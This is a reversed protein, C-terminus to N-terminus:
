MGQPGKIEEIGSCRDNEISKEGSRSFRTTLTGYFRRRGESKSLTGGAWAPFGMGSLSGPQGRTQRILKQSHRLEARKRAEGGLGGCHSRGKKGRNM